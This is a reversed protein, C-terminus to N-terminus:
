LDLFSRPPPPSPRPCRARNPGKANYELRGGLHPAVRKPLDAKRRNTAVGLEDALERLNGIADRKRQKAQTEM